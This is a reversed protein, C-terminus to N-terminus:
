RIAFRVDRRVATRPNLTAEISLMYNGSALSALPLEYTFDAANHPAFRSEALTDATEIVIRDGSDTIRATVRVPEARATRQYLRMFARARDRPEFERRTTPLVPV